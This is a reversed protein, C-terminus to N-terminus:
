FYVFTNIIITNPSICIQYRKLLKNTVFERKYLFDRTQLQFIDEINLAEM